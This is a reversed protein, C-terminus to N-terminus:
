ARLAVVASIISALLTAGGAVATGVIWRFQTDTRQDLRAISENVQAFGTRMETRVDGLGAQLERRGEALGADIRTELRGLSARLETVTGELKAVREVVEAM